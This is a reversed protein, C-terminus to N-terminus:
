KGRILKIIYNDIKTLYGSSYILDKILFIGFLFLLVINIIPVLSLMGAPIVFGWDPKSGNKISLVELAFMFLIAAFSILLSGLIMLVTSM